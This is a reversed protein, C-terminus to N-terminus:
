YRRSSLEADMHLVHRKSNVVEYGGERAQKIYPALVVNTPVVSTCLTLQGYHEDSAFDDKGYVSCM